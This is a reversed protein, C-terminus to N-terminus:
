AKWMYTFAGMFPAYIPPRILNLPTIYFHFWSSMSPTINIGLVTVGRNVSNWTVCNLFLILVFIFYYNNQFNHRIKIQSRSLACSVFITSSYPHAILCNRHSLWTAVSRTGTHQFKYKLQVAKQMSWHKIFHISLELICLFQNAGPSGSLVHHM